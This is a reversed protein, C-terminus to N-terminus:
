DKKIEYVSDKETERGGGEEKAKERGGEREETLVM